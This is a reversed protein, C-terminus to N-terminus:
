QKTAPAAPKGSGTGAPKSSSEGTPKVGGEASPKSEPKAAQGAAAPPAGPPTAGAVFPVPTVTMGPQNAKIVGDVMVREGAVLGKTVIWEGNSWGDIEVPQPALKNDPTVKFVMKGM